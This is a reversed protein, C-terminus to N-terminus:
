CAPLRSSSLLLVYEEAWKQFESWMIVQLLILEPARPRGSPALYTQWFGWSTKGPIQVLCDLDGVLLDHWAKIKQQLM